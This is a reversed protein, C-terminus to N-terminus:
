TENLFKRNSTANSSATEVKLKLVYCREHVARGHEDTNCKELLVEKGCIWCLHQRSNLAPTTSM